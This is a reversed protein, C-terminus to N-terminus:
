NDAKSCINLFSNIKISNLKLSGVMQISLATTKKKLDAFLKWEKFNMLINRKDILITM